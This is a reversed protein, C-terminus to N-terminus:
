IIDCDLNTSHHVWRNVHLPSDIPEDLMIPMKEKINPIHIGVGKLFKSLILKYKSLLMPHCSINDDHLIGRCFRELQAVYHELEVVSKPKITLGEITTNSQM